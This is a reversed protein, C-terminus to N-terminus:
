RRSFWHTSSGTTTAPLLSMSNGSRTPSHDLFGGSRLLEQAYADLNAEAAPSM